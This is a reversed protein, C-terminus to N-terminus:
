QPTERRGAQEARLRSVEACSLGTVQAVQGDSMQALLRRAIELAAKGEGEARGRAVGQAIGKELGKELGEAIGKEVGQAIGKELGEALGKELGEAMGKALGQKQAKLLANRQDWIFMEKRELEELEERTLGALQARGFAERIEAVAEMPAPIMQLDPAKRLFYLWKDRVGDLEELSKKFKPLEVFALELDGRPYDTLREQEKLVFRSEVGPSDEFMVFDTITLAIVPNLSGYDQGALLQTSYTKAANYLIRQEMGEVNLVQMEIIVIRGNSLRARVDVYTDKVGQIKPALYPDLIELDAIVPQGAYLLANLFSKLIARSEQAGFIRKFAFDTRPNIFQM